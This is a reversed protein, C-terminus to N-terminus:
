STRDEDKCPWQEKKLHDYDIGNVSLLSGAGVIFTGGRSKCVGQRSFKIWSM